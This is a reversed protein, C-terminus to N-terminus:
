YNIEFVELNSVIFNANGGNLINTSPVSFKDCNTKNQNNSMCNHRIQIDCCGIKLMINDTNNNRTGGNIISNSQSSAYYKQRQNLSFIFSNQAKINTNNPIWASTVYGGFIYGTNSKIVVLTPCKGDCKDHFTSANDWERVTDFLLNIKSPKNPLWSILLTKDNEKLINSNFFNYSNFNYEKYNINSENENFNIELNKFSENLLLDTEKKNKNITSIYSVVKRINNENDNKLKTIGNKINENKKIINNCDTLHNKLKEIIKTVENKL